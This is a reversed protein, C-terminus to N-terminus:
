QLSVDQVHVLSAAPSQNTVSMDRQDGSMPLDDCIEYGGNDDNFETTAKSGNTEIKAQQSQDGPTPLDDCIEDGDKDGIFETTETTENTENETQKYQQLIKLHSKSKAHSHVLHKPHYRIFPKNKCIQCMYRTQSSAICALHTIWWQDQQLPIFLSAHHPGKGCGSM